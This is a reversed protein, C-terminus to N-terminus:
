VLLPSATLPQISEWVPDQKAKWLDHNIQLNMWLRPSTNFVQALRLAMYPEIAGRENAIRSMTARTVGVLNALQTVTLGLPEMYQRRLIGGPHAPQRTRRLLAEVPKEGIFPDPVNFLCAVSKGQSDTHISWTLTM